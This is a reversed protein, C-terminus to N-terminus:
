SLPTRRIVVQFHDTYNEIMRLFDGQGAQHLLRDPEDILLITDRKTTAKMYDLHIWLGVLWQIGEGRDAISVETNFSDRLDLLLMEGDKVLRLETNV